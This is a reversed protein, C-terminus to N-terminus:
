DAKIALASAPMLPAARGTRQHQEFMREYLLELNRAYRASDFLPVSHRTAQLQERVARLEAPSRALRLAIAEYDEVSTAILGDLGVAHVLSAAVRSVFTQGPLTLLPVGAWLADSATTHANVPLTDLFLDANQLRALNDAQPVFAAFVLRAPDIGRARAERCLNARAQDNLAMLWLVSDPVAQLLRCWLTFIEPTIKYSNNFCCFVFGQEPLGCAARSPAPPLPRQRDNPQYCDPLYAFKESFHPALELPTVIPDTILYDIFDAGLTGPFGLYNVQIPAPRYACIGMRGGETYGKLDVLIDIGDARIRRAVDVDAQTRVDVFHDCAARLRARMPSQDDIGYSYLSVEFRDQQRLELVEALLMATAHQHFDSSLYGIRLRQGARRPVPKAAPLPEIAGVLDRTYARTTLHQFAADVPLTFASFPSLATRGVGLARQLALFDDSLHDWRCACLSWYILDCWPGTENPMLVAATRMAEAAAEPLHLRTLANGLDVYAPVHDKKLALAQLLVEAADSPRGEDYLARGYAALESYSLPGQARLREFYLIADRPRHQEILCITLMRAALELAPNVKLAREAAHVAQAPRGLKRCAQALNLWYVGDSADLTTAREFETLAHSWREQKALALGKQWADFAKQSDRVVHPAQKNRVPQPMAM